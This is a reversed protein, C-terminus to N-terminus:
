SLDPDQWQRAGTGGTTAAFTMCVCRKTAAQYESSGTKFHFKGSLKPISRMNNQLADFFDAQGAQATEMERATALVADSITEAAQSPTRFCISAATPCTTPRVTITLRRKTNEVGDAGHKHLRHTEPPPNRYRNAAKKRHCAKASCPTTYEEGYVTLILLTRMEPPSVRVGVERSEWGKSVHEKPAIKLVCM